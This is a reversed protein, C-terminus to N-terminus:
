AAAKYSTSLPKIGLCQGVVGVRDLADSVAAGSLAHWPQLNSDM